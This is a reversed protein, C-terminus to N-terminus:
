YIYIVLDYTLARFARLMDRVEEKDLVIDRLGRDDEITSIYVEYIAQLYNNIDLWSHAALARFRQLAVAKLRYILYKEVFAYVDYDFHYLYHVMIHVLRPDDDLLNIKENQAEIARYVQYEKGRYSIMLDSYEGSSYLLVSCLLRSLMLAM